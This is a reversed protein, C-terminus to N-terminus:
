VYVYNSSPHEFMLPLSLFCFHTPLKTKQLYSMKYTISQWEMSFTCYIQGVFIFKPQAFASIPWFIALIQSNNKASFCWPAFMFQFILKAYWWILWVYMHKSNATNKHTYNSVAQISNNSKIYSVSCYVKAESHM